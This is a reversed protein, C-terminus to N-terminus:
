ASQGSEDDPEPTHIRVVNGAVDRETIAERRRATWDSWLLPGASGDPGGAARYTCWAGFCSPCLGSRLRHSKRTDSKRIFRACARCEGTGAPTRDEDSAHRLLENTAATAGLADQWITRLTEAYIYDAAEWRSPLSAHRETSSTTDTGRSGGDGLTAASYGKAALVSAMDTARLANSRIAKAADELASAIVSPEPHSPLGISRVVPTPEPTPGQHNHGNPAPPQATKPKACRSCPKRTCTAPDHHAAALEFITPGYTSM